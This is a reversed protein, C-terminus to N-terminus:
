ARGRAFSTLVCVLFLVGFVLTALKAGIVGAAPGSVVTMVAALIAILAFVLMWGLMILEGTRSPNVQGQTLNLV